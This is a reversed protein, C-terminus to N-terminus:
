TGYGEIVHGIMHRWLKRNKTGRLLTQRKMVGGMEQDAMWECM